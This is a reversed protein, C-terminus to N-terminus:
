RGAAISEVARGLETPRVGSEGRFPVDVIAVLAVLVGLVSSLVLASLLHQLTWPVVSVLLVGLVLLVSTARWFARPLHQAAATIRAERLDSLEDIQRGFATYAGSREPNSAAAARSTELMVALAADAEGSRGSHVLMPWEDSLLHRAYDLLLGRLADARADSLHLLAHSAAILEAAERRVDSEVRRLNLMAQVLSFALVLATLSVVSRYADMVEKGQEPRLRVRLVWRVVLLAVVTSGAVLLVSLAIIADDSFDYIWFPM